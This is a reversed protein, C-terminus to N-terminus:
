KFSEETEGDGEAMGSWETCEIKRGNIRQATDSLQTHTHALGVITCHCRVSYMLEIKEMRVDCWREGM